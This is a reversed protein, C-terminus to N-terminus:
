RRRDERPERPETDLAVLHAADEVAPEAVHRDDRGAVDRRRECGALRGAALCRADALDDGALADVVGSATRIPTSTEPDPEFRPASISRTCPRAAVIAPTQELLPSANASSRARAAPM